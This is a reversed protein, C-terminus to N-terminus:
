TRLFLFIVLSCPLSIHVQNFNSFEFFSVHGSAHGLVFVNNHVAVCAARYDSPLWLITEMGQTVWGKNVFITDIHLSRSFPLRVPFFLDSELYDVIQNTVLHLGDNSFSINRIYAHAKRVGRLAGTVSDWLRATDDLSISAVLKGDPSFAVTRIPISHSDLKGHPAEMASDWLRVTRDKSAWVVLKSDPSFAM